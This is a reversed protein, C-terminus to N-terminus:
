GPETEAETVVPLLAPRKALRHDGTSRGRVHRVLWPLWYRAIWDADEVRSRWWATPSLPPLPDRWSPDPRVGLVDAFAIALRTHGATNLHLRDRSWWRPDAVAPQGEFDVLVVGHRAAASRIAANLARVRPSLRKAISFTTGPDPFTCGLVTAGAARLEAYMAELDRMTEALDFSGLVDNAGAMVSVLDPELALAPSLQDARIRATRRGRVALNAYLLDPNREALFAAFRDAWGRIGGRPDVDNMGETQSDGIAVYRHFRVVGHHRRLASRPASGARWSRPM